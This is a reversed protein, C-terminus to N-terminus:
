TLLSCNLLYLPVPEPARAAISAAAPAAITAAFLQGDAVVPAVDAAPKPPLLRQGSETSTRPTKCCCSAEMSAQAMDHCGPMDCPASEPVGPMCPSIAAALLVALMVNLRLVRSHM